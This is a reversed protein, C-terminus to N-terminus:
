KIATLTIQTYTHVSPPFLLYYYNIKAMCAGHFVTRSLSREGVSSHRCAPTQMDARVHLIEEM